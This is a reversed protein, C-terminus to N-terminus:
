GSQKKRELVQLFEEVLRGAAVCELGFPLYGAYGLIPMEFVQFRQVFPVAYTWRALSYFNWMEWFIGCILAAAAAAIVPRWDGRAVTSLVQSEGALTRLSVLILLPSIWLVPFLFNPFVGIMLLGSGAAALVLAAVAKPHRFSLATYDAFASTLLPLHSLLRRTSLVAPLVTSFSMSALFFYTWPDYQAGTYFWNQVFRNLYEFFWWFAASAPFLCLFFGPRAKLLCSGTIQEDLANVVLIYSLWLPTFTHPQLPAFWSFRSWAMVWFVAGSVLAAWGWRPFRGSQFSLGKGRGAGQLLRHVLPAVAGAILLLYLLFATWSFPAHSIYRGEPPFTLYRQVPLDALWVGFIPFGLLMAALVAIKALFLAMKM